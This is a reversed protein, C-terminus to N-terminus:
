RLCRDKWIDVFSARFTRISLSTGPEVLDALAMERDKIRLSHNAVRGVFLNVEPVPRNVTWVLWGEKDFQLNMNGTSTEPMGAGFSDYRSKVILLHNGEIRLTDYVPRKNVSHVFSLIFEEGEGMEACLIVKGEKATTIRLVRHLPCFFFTIVAALSFVFIGVKKIM